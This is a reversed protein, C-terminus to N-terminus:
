IVAICEYTDVTVSLIKVRSGNDCVVVLVVELWMPVTIWSHESVEYIAVSVLMCIVILM